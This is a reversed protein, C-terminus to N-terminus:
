ECEGGASSVEQFRVYAANWADTDSPAFDKIPFSGRILPQAEEMSQILGLGLAQVMLNGVATGEKPGAMVPLGLANATFQNLLANNSGGGVIHVVKSTNGCVGCIQENVARYKMALSEYVLRLIVGRDGDAPMTQGTEDIFERIATEMNVPNYFRPDDPDIFATFPEAAPAITDVEKWEMQKGDQIKWVRLLEQVIWTGMCNKLFRTNGIGGENSLNVDMAAQSTIPKSILKGILSWTGSSIILAEDANSIPAAAFASATDHSGVSMLEARNLGLLEALPASLAGVGKGPAVIEPLLGAPIELADLLEKSWQGTAADMLQTVSAWSSDVQTCGGLYYYFLTPVPLYRAAPRLLEPRRTVFWRLQNSLNFPQFHIGTIEYVRKADICQKVEEIMNDLRHDRYCHVKGLLEGDESVVAGDAGWTDIGISDVHDSIDRRYNRLGEIINSYIYTDDWYNREILKGSRDPLFFTNGGHDFRHVEQMSFGDGTIKAAFCKGGSAGLDVAFMTKDSM